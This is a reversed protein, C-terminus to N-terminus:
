QGRIVHIEGLRVEEAPTLDHDLERTLRLEAHYSRFHDDLSYSRLALDPTFHYWVSGPAPPRREVVLVSVADEDVTLDGVWNYPEFARNICTRAFLVRAKEHAPPFGLLQHDHDVEVSAGTVHKPDLVVLTAAKYSNSIGGLYINNGGVAVHELYGSHWYEGLLKGRGSLLVVQNPYYPSQASTVVIAPAGGEGLPAVIFDRIFYRDAFSQVPSSVPRGPVFRWREEGLDSLCVLYSAGAAQPTRVFLVEQHGDADLDGTWFRRHGDRLDISYQDTSLPEGFVRRWIERGSHDLVVLAGQDVRFSAPYTRPPRALLLISLASIFLLLGASLWWRPSLSPRGTGSSAGASQRWAALEDRSASVGSRKGPLRRVPLGREREWKQAARVSVGLYAAIEKWSSLGPPEDLPGAMIRPTYCHTNRGELVIHTSIAGGNAKTRKGPNSHVPM